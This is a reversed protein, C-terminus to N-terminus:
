PKDAAAPPTIAQPPAATDKDIKPEKLFEVGIQTTPDGRWGAAAGRPATM